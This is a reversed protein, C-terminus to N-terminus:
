GIGRLLCGVGGCRLLGAGFRCTRYRRRQAYRRCGLRTQKAAIRIVLQAEALLVVPRVIKTERFFVEASRLRLADDSGDIINRLIVHVLQDVFMPPIDITAKFLGMYCGEVTGADLLKQRFKLIVRYNDRADADEVAAVEKESVKRRPSEM